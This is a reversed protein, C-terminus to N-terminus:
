RIVRLGTPASPSALRSFPARPMSEASAGAANIAVLTAEYSGIPFALLIGSGGTYICVSGPNSPDDWIFRTPNITTTASPQAQQCSTATAVFAHTQFPMTAGLQYFRAEYSEPTQSHVPTAAVLLSFIVVLSQKM